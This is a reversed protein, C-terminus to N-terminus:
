LHLKAKWYNIEDQLSFKFSYKKNLERIVKKLQEGSIREDLNIYVFSHGERQNIPPPTMYDGYKETLYEEYNQPLVVKRGEYEGITGEGFWEQPMPKEGRYPGTLHSHFVYGTPCSVRTAIKEWEDQIHQHLYWFHLWQFKLYNVLGKCQSGTRVSIAYYKKQVDLIDKIQQSFMDPETPANDLPVIDIYIGGVYLPYLQEIVTTHANELKLFHYQNNPKLKWSTLEMDGWVSKPLQQIKEYDERPMHVDIDDDWPILGKHRIAGLVSGYAMYYRLNNDECVQIFKDLVGLLAAKIKDNKM